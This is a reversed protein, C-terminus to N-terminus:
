SGAGAVLFDGSTACWSISCIIEFAVGLCVNALIELVRIHITNVQLPFAAPLLLAPLFSTVTFSNILKFLIYPKLMM